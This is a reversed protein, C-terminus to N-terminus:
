KGICFENFIKNLVEESCSHGTIENLANLAKTVDFAAFEESAKEECANVATNISELALTLLNKHRLNCIITKESNTIAQGNLMIQKIRDKLEDIGTNEKVSIKLIKNLSTKLIESVKKPDAQQNLDIKNFLYLCKAYYNKITNMISVDEDTLDKSADILLVIIDANKMLEYSRAIGESEIDHNSIRIGATDIIKYIIGDSTLEEEIFDRTTGPHRTVISRKKKLLLNFLSSKGVNPRGAIVVKIGERMLRGSDYSDILTEIKKKIKLLSTKIESLPNAPVDEESFDIALELKSSIDLLVSRLRNIENSITGNLQDVTNFLSKETKAKILDIVAEAQILDMRGNLFARKTFEGPLALRAGRSLTLDLVKSLITMGGHCSIEVVDEKTYSHPAKMITVLVEDVTKKTVPDIIKGHYAKHSVSLSNKSGNPRAFINKVIQLSQSGSLRVIGIGGSGPPTSVASITDESYM